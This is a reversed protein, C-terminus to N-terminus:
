TRLANLGSVEKGVEALECVKCLTGEFAPTYSAGCYPCQSSASGRYIPTLSGACVVFPNREDYELQHADTPNKDAYAVVKKAQTAIEYKPNLEILRQAFSSALKFCKAKYACNMASRLSLMLHIPQLNCHSFYAALECIRKVNKSGAQEDKRAQEIGIGQIYERSLALLEKMETLESRATVTTLAIARIIYQFHQLAESFKGGTTAKYALKLKEILPALQMVDLPLAPNNKSTPDADQWNRNLGMLVSPTGPFASLTARTGLAIALVHPKLPAFNVFGVQKNLLSFASELSGAAVHDAAFSSNRLWVERFSPGARPVVFFGEGGKGGASGGGSPVAVSELGEIELDGWGEGDGEGEGDSPIQLEEGDGFGEAGDDPIDIDDEGFGAEGSEMELAADLKAGAGAGGKDTARAIMVEVMSKQVTLLPWPEDRVSQVVACPQLLRGSSAAAAAEARLKDVDGGTSEIKALIEDAKEGLGHTAALMYALPLQRATVLVDVRDAVDGVFLANHLRGMLDNRMGAIKLMKALKDTNGTILYLFSLREYSKTRQYCMEVIQQNGQQLAAHALRDWSEKQDIAKAADLAVDILGCELALNLRAHDDKVFQLAIEPYGKKQLYAIISQGILNCERVMKLVKQIDRRVLALKFLFETPDIALARNRGQRDLCFVKNGKVATIYIPVDLTRVIGTDGNPLCYKIHNLTTYVFVSEDHWAGSKIPINERILCLQTLKKDAISIVDRGVLAVMPSKDSASWVVRKIGPANVEAIVTKRQLDFLSCRDDSRMIVCGTTAPFITDVSADPPTVRKTVENKLNKVVITHSKTMLAFRNRAVFCASAALGRKAEAPKDSRGDKPLHYLDYSGGENESWIIIAHEAPNYHLSRPAGGIATSRRITMVANDRGTAFDYSRLYREKVYFLIRGHVYYAPRERELKFVVLGTDHGAAFLNRHPHAALTWFRDHERRFTQVGVRKGMDWVRITKDESNSLILEQRPHFIACSVNNFHGRLTDVEWAKTENMRWLKVQRDDAGSIILPLSPHFEAWNVGRDHGELVHSVVVDTNGFLDGQGRMDDGGGMGGMGYSSPSFNKKRLGSIDWVRVTQDLSATVVMDEKPHFRACMVYHNHGSLVAICSRSQWNWIRVIQDDSASLIWPYEHHFQVTRIYDLHGLLTFQCRRTKYNWVKVKYDDGGTVFLPQSNHFAVGRVPGDHEEFKDILTRIRFDWLQVTGNHLSALIWPRTPHFAIGKVRNSSTEFKNLM